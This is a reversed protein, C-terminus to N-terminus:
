FLASMSIEKNVAISEQNLLRKIDKCYLRIDSEKKFLLEVKLTTEDVETGDEHTYHGQVVQMTNDGVVNTVLKMADQTEVEQQKSDKDNLGILLTYKELQEM